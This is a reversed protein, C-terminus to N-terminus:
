GAHLQGPVARLAQRRGHRPGPVPDLRDIVGKEGLLDGVESVSAGKPITVTVEGSGDGYFPQFLAFLFWLVFLAAVAAFIRFPHRRLAGLLAGGRPQRPGAGNGRALAPEDLVPRRAPKPVSPGTKPGDAVSEDDWFEKGSTRSFPEAAVSPEHSSGPSPEVSGGRRQSPSGDGPDGGAVGEREERKRRRQERERRRQERERAAPDDPDAFPDGALWDDSM